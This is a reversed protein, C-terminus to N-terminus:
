AKEGLPLPAEPGPGSVSENDETDSQLLSELEQAAQRSTQIMQVEDQYVAHQEVLTKEDHALFRRLSRRAEERNVGLDILLQESLYLSSYLTERVHGAVERDMLLHAHRRNRARAFIRLHPFHRQITDIVRISSTLNSIAIVIDKAHDAGAARLLDTRASDGFYVKGGFRRIVDVQEASNDLATFPIGRMRLIRGVIQGVRGFGCIIVQPNEDEIADYEPPPNRLFFRPMMWEEHLAFLLPTAVMSLIVIMSLQSSLAPPLIGEGVAFGFLVLAFEGGQALLVAMRSASLRDQGFLRSLAFLVASKGLLLVAVGAFIQLPASFLLNTDLSMGMSAFFLGLLLGEFPEIDAQIEHRYESDSLMVGALFAGLSMSLGAVAALLATGIVMLLAVATYLERAKVLDALYFLPRVLYRGGLFIAAVCLAGIAIGQWSPAVNGGGPAGLFPLLAVIPIFILDQFLLVGLGDRGPPTGLLDREALLPLVLATSSMSLGFGIVLSIPLTLGFWLALGTFLAATVFVQAGGFLFVTRRMIWLRAPKLELGILFLLMVVGLESVHSASETDRILGFGAPGVVIGAILYGIISGIGLRKAFPVAIIAAILLVVIPLLLSDM